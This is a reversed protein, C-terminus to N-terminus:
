AAGAPPVARFLESDVGAERVSVLGPGAQVRISRGTEGGIAEARVPIGAASLQSRVVDVNRAGVDINLAREFRFMRAGGALVAVVGASSAGLRSLARILAPVATDAYKGPEDTAREGSEPFIVHALGGLGRAPDLLAVGVCSGLGITTLVGGPDATVSLEGMGVFIEETSV